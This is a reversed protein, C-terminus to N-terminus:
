KRSKPAPKLLQHLSEGNEYDMVMYGTSNAEFYRNVRV